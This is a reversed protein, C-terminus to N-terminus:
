PRVAPPGLPRGPGVGNGPPPGRVTLRGGRRRYGHQLQHPDRELPKHGYPAPFGFAGLHRAAVDRKGDENAPNDPESIFSTDRLQSPLLHCRLIREADGYYQTYGWRGLLLATEVIDGTNNVEGHDPDAGDGSSEIVWGIEDRIDNLGNDYFARVREM